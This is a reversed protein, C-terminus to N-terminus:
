VSALLENEILYSVPLAGGGRSGLDHYAARMARRAGPARPGRAACFPRRRAM